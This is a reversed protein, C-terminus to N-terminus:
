KIKNLFEDFSILNLSDKRNQEFTKFEYYSNSVKSHDGLNITKSIIGVGWDSDVCCSFIDKRLRAKFFAKWTTGNWTNMAPSIQYSYEERAHFESPPNCDHLIIFGDDKIFCLANEIDREVQDALHLGDVFIIDFRTMINLVVSDRLQNFFEDSTMKFDVPNELFEVGPDVSYKVDAKILNFNDNPNRVGIELYTIKRNLSKAIHNIIDSRLPQKKREISNLENVALHIPDNLFIEGNRYYTKIKKLM